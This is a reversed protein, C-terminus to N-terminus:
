CVVSAWCEGCGGSAMSLQETLESRGHVGMQITWGGEKRGERKGKRGAELKQAWPVEGLLALTLQGLHVTM